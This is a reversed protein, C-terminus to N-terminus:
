PMESRISPCVGLDRFEQATLAQAVNDPMISTSQPKREEIESTKVDMARFSAGRPELRYQEIRLDGWSTVLLSGRFEAPLNNAEYSLVGCPAEGTGAVM